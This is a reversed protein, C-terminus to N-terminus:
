TPLLNVRMRLISPLYTAKLTILQVQSSQNKLPTHPLAPCKSTPFVNCKTLSQKSQGCYCLMELSKCPFCFSCTLNSLHIWVTQSKALKTYLRNLLFPESPSIPTNTGWERGSIRVVDTLYPFNGAIYLQTFHTHM